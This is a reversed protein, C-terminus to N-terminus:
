YRTDEPAPVMPIDVVKAYPRCDYVMSQFGGAELGRPQHLLSPHSTHTFARATNVTARSTTQRTAPM